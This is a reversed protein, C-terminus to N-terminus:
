KKTWKTIRDCATCGTYMNGQKDWTIYGTEGLQGVGRGPSGVAGLVKGNRDIKLLQGDVGSGVWLNGAPDFAVNCALNRLQVTKLFEGEATYVVLRYQERDAIWVDGNRPDVAVDHAQMFKGPGSGNGYWQAIFKGDKTLHLIRAAGSQNTPDPGGMDNPSENAHGEGIYVSGDKAFAMSLPMWLLRQGTAENWDGRHLHEGLTLLLQGSNSIKKITSGNADSIWVNDEPDVKIDHPKFQRDGMEKDGVSLLLKGDPAFKFVSPMSPPNRQYAWLNGKSDVSVSPVGGGPPPAFPYVAHYGMNAPVSVWQVREGGRIGNRLGSPNNAAVPSCVPSKACPPINSTDQRYVMSDSTMGAPRAAAGGGRAAGGPPPGTRPAPKPIFWAPSGNAAPGSRPVERASAAVIMGISLVSAAVFHSHKM